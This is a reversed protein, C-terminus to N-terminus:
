ENQAKNRADSAIRYPGIFRRIEVSLHDLVKACNHAAPEATRFHHEVSHVVLVQQASYLNM